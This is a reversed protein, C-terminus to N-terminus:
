TQNRRNWAAIAGIMTNWRDTRCGCFKNDCQVYYPFHKKKPKTILTATSGCFPCPEPTRKMGLAANIIRIQNALEEM